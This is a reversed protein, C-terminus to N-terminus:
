QGSGTETAGNSASRLALYGDGEERSSFRHIAKGPFSALLDLLAPRSEERFRRIFDLFEEDEQTEVWPLDSRVQGRRTRIGELCVETPYDLFFVTDCADLRLSLTSNYHGDLIWADSRLISQLRARFEERSVTTRDPNWYIADLHYLPLGTLAHLRRAFTSKGSGPCGIVVVRRLPAPPIAPAQHQM